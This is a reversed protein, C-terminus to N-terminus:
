RPGGIGSDAGKDAGVTPDVLGRLQKNGLLAPSRQRQQEPGVILAVTTNKAGTAIEEAM